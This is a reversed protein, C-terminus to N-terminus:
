MVSYNGAKESDLRKKNALALSDITDDHFGNPHTYQITNSTESQKYTFAEMETSLYPFLNPTPLLLNQREVEVVLSQILDQKSKSTTKFGEFNDYREQLREMFYSGVNNTEIYAEANNYLALYHSIDHEIKEYSVQNIRYMFVVKNREKEIITLVTYDQSLGIDVGAVYEAGTKPVEWEDVVLLDSFGTFVEGSGELFRVKYEQEFSTSTLNERINDIQEQSIYPNHTWDYSYSITYNNDERRGQMWLHYWWNKTNPTSFMVVKKGKVVTAPELIQDWAEKVFFAAEDLLLYDFTQGRLAHYSKSSGFVIRSGNSLEVTLETSNSYLFLPTSRIFNEIQKYLLKVQKHSFSVVGVTSRPNNISFDLVLNELLISKGIQRSTAVIYQKYNEHIIDNYVKEQWPFFRTGKIITM